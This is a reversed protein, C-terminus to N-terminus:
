FLKLYEDFLFLRNRRQGTMEKLLRNQVMDSVLDNAAKYSLNLLQQAEHVHIIPKKFLANLLIAANAARKGYIQPLTSELRAKLQLVASLTQTANEATEAVGVLFYKLWQTMDNKTRVFTLNDYYLSKNKEFYASLYDEWKWEDNIFSPRFYSYGTHHKEFRGAQYTELPIM